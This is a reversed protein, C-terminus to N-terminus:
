GSGTNLGYGELLRKLNCLFYIFLYFLLQNAQHTLFCLPANFTPQAPSFAHIVVQPPTPPQLPRM